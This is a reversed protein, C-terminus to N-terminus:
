KGATLHQERLVHVVQLLAADQVCDCVHLVQRVPVTALQLLMRTELQQALLLQLVIRHHVCHIVRRLLSLLHLPIVPLLIQIRRSPLSIPLTHLTHQPTNTHSVLFCHYVDTTNSLRTYRIRKKRLVIVLLFIILGLVFATSYVFSPIADHSLLVSSVTKNSPNLIETPTPQNCPNCPPAPKCTPVANCPPAPKCTPVNCPPAPKCTPVANCPPAPKCTPVPKTDAAAVQNSKIEGEFKHSLSFVTDGFSVFCKVLGPGGRTISYVGDIRNVSYVQKDQKLSCTFPSQINTKISFTGNEENWSDFAYEAKKTTTKFSCEALQEKMTVHAVSEAYCFVRYEKDPLLLNVEAVVGSISYFQKGYMVERVTPIYVLDSFAECWVFSPIVTTVSVHITDAVSSFSQIQLSTPEGIMNYMVPITVLPYHQHNTNFVICTLSDVAVMERPYLTYPKSDSSKFFPQEKMEHVLIDASPLANGKFNIHCYSSFAFSLQQFKVLITQSETLAEITGPFKVSM